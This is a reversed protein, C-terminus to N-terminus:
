SALDDDEDEDAYNFLEGNYHAVFLGLTGLFGIGFAGAGIAGLRIANQIHFWICAVGIGFLFGAINAWQLMARQDRRRYRESETENRKM